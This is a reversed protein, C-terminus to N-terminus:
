PEVVTVTTETGTGTGTGGKSPADTLLFTVLALPLLVAMVLGLAVALRHGRSLQTLDGIGPLVLSPPESADGLFPSGCDRCAGATLANRAGCRTCPWSAEARQAPGGPGPVVAPAPAPAVAAPPALPAPLLLDLLPATLPDDGGSPPVPEPTEPAAARRLDFYCLSCWTADPRLAAGCSPCAVTRTAQNLDPGM